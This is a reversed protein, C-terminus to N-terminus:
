TGTRPPRNALSRAYSETWAPVRAAPMPRAVAFGQVCACGLEALLAIEGPSEVGEAIAEIGLTSALRIIAAVTARQGPDGEMGTVFGRDIKIRDVRFRRITAIGAQGAGFDDLDLRFGFDKLGHLNRSVREGAGTELASERIEIAVRGPAVEARDTEWKLRDCFAADRLEATSLNVSIGPVGLGAADWARLAALAQALMAEGLHTGAEAADLARLFRDPPLVGEDPHEWRALAEFGALAGSAADIQPQFWARFEDRAFAADLDAALARHKRSDRRMRPSFCRIGGPGDARAEALAEEAAQLMAAATNDPARGALCLGTSVSLTVQTQDLPVPAALADRLRGAIAMVNDFEARGMPALVVAFRDGAIRAAADEARLAQVIRDAAVRLIADGADIGFRENIHRFRDIDLVLIACMRGTTRVAALFAALRALADDRLMLGTLPDAAAPPPAAAAAPGPAATRDPILAQLAVLLPFLFSVVFLVAGNGAWWAALVMLPVLGVIRVGRLGGLLRHLFPTPPPTDV